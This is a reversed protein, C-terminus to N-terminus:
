GPELKDPREFIHDYNPSRRRRLLSEGPTEAGAELGRETFNDYIYIHNMLHDFFRKGM